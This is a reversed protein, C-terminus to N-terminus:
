FPQGLAHLTLFQHAHTHTQTNTHVSGGEFHSGLLMCPLFNSHSSNSHFNFHIPTFIPIAPPFQFPQGLAHLTLFQFPQFQFSFQISQLSFQFPQLINSHSGLLMCPLFNSHSSNSHLNFHIPIFIPIAPLLQFPQGLAHLTLFQFPQFQFSFQFSKSHFNSHSSSIPIAAWSCALYTPNAM